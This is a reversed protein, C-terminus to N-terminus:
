RSIPRLAHSTTTWIPAPSKASRVPTASELLGDLGHGTAEVVRKVMSSMRADSKGEKEGEGPDLSLQSCHEPGSGPRKSAVGLTDTVANRLEDLKLNAAQVEELIRREQDTPIFGDDM